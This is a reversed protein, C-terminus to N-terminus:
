RLGTGTLAFSLALDMAGVLMLGIGMFRFPARLFALMLGGIMGLSSGLVIFVETPTM